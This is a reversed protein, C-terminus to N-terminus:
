HFMPTHTQDSDSRYTRGPAIIKFPPKSDLMTRIQVPSTHTRLLYENNVDLYFTDHMDRAPHNDPTNLASFNNYENEVDPGEEVSFGIESFISSIEDIVQSIPHIKGRNFSREPLTIDVKENQLKLNIENIEIDQIKNEILSQLEDKISNLDSAFKKRDTAPISGMKKFETSIKGNKGFLESKLQNVTDLDLNNKLKNLYEEKIKIIDSM